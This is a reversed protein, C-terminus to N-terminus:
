VRIFHRQEGAKAAAKEQQFRAAIAAVHILDQSYTPNDRFYAEVVARIEPDKIAEVGSRLARKLDVFSNADSRRLM